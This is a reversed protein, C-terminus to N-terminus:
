ILRRRYLLLPILGFVVTTRGTDGDCSCGDDGPNLEQASDDDDGLQEAIGDCDEDVDNGPEEDAEPHVGPDQDDCDLGGACVEADFWGDADDDEPIAGDCDNDLGDCLEPADPFVDANTDDCDIADAGYTDRCAESSLWFGDGDGDLGEDIVGNCDNDLGDCLEPAGPNVVPDSDDCDTDAGLADFCEPLDADPFGDSDSDFDEDISGDCDEDVGDCSEPAGPRIDPRSDNCDLEYSTNACAVEEYAGDYDLDFGEDVFTDCDDDVENCVEPSGDARLTSPILLLAILLLLRM